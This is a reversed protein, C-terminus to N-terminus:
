ATVPSGPALRGPSGLTRGLVAGSRQKGDVAVGEGMARKVSEWLGDPPAVFATAARNHTKGVEQDPQKAAFLRACNNDPPVGEIDRVEPLLQKWWVLAAALKVRFEDILQCDEWAENGRTAKRAGFRRSKLGVIEKRGCHGRLLRTTSRRQDRGTVAIGELEGGRARGNQM